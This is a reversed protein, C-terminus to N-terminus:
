LVMPNHIAGIKITEKKGKAVNISKAGLLYLFAMPFVFPLHGHIANAYRDLLYELVVLHKM